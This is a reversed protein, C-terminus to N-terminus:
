IAKKRKSTPPKRYAGILAKIASRYVDTPTVPANPKSLAQAIEKVTEIDDVDLRVIIKEMRRRSFVVPQVLM